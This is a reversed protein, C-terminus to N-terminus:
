EEWLEVDNMEVSVIDITDGNEDTFEAVYSPPISNHVILIVGKMGPKITEGIAKKAIICDYENLEISM